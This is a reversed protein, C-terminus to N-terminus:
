TKEKGILDAAVRANLERWPQSAKFMWIAHERAVEIFATGGRFIPLYDKGRIRVAGGEAAIVPPLEIIVLPEPRADFSFGFEPGSARIDDHEVGAQINLRRYFEIWGEAGGHSIATGVAAGAIVNAIDDHANPAHDISDRGGRATRRELGCIQAIAKPHDLLEIGGSNIIPLFDRYLDSKPKAAQLCQIGHVRFREAVWLGAYRDATVGDLIRYAKLLAVFELVADEPSFPPTVERIADVVVRDGEGRHTICLTMSDTGSGGSADLFASYITAGVPALEYRGTKVCAKVAEPSVFSEIDSRFQAGYEAQAKAPDKAYEKALFDDPITPNMEKTTAQWVLIDADDKGFYRKHDEWLEGRKAYPSSAKLMMAKPISAMAPRAAGIIESDPNALGQDTPWYALEDALFAVMSYSRVTKFDAALIEVTIGNRLELSTKTNSEILGDLLPISLMAKLYGFIARGQKMDAAVIMITGREGGTLYPTWDFFAALFAAVLALMLSKGGRRGCVLTAEFYGTSWPATRGTFKQFTALEADDLPIGFLVKLFVFWAAWTARDRFWPGFIEPSECAQMITIPASPGVKKKFKKKAGSTM